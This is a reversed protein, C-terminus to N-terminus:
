KRRQIKIPFGTKNQLSIAMELRLDSMKLDTSLRYSRLIASVQHKMSQVAYRVGLVGFYMFCLSFDCSPKSIRGLCMRSGLSFSIYAFPHRKACEEPTFRMPEFIEPNDWYKQSMHLNVPWVQIDVGAPVTCTALKIDVSPTRGYSVIAPFHRLTEKFVMEMYVLKPLDDIRIDRDSDGFINCLEECCKDQVEPHMALMLLM